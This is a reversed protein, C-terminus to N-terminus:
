THLIKTLLADFQLGINGNGAILRHAEVINAVSRPTQFDNENCWLAFCRLVEAAALRATNSDKDTLDNSVTQLESSIRLAEHSKAQVLSNLIALLRDYTESHEHIRKIHAPGREGFTREAPTLTGHVREIESWDPLTAPITVCRSVITQPLHSPETTTLIMKVHSGPEELTKLLANCADANLRDAHHIVIVKHRALLPRTRVFKVVPIVSQDEDTDADREIIDRIRIQNSKGHPAIRQFDVCKGALFGKCAKCEQCPQGDVPSLCLWGAALYEALDLNGKPDAGFILAAHVPHATSLVRQVTRKASVMGPIEDLNFASLITSM